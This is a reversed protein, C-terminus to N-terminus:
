ANKIAKKVDDVIFFTGSVILYAEEQRCKELASKVASTISESKECKISNKEFWKALEETEAALPHSFKPLYAYDVFESYERAMAKIDKTSLMACILIKKTNPLLEKMAAGLEKVGEPNHSVDIIIKKEKDEKYVQIRSNVEASNIGSKISSYNIDFGYECIAEIACLATLANEAQHRGVNRLKFRYAKEEKTAVFSTSDLTIDYINIKYEEADIIPSNTKKCKSKIVNKSSPSQNPAVVVPIDTKIIGSKEFTIKAVTDGLLDVHDLSIHTIVSLIPYIVNTADGKGGMGAEIIAIDCDNDSFYDFAIATMIEFFTPHQFGDEVMKESIEFSVKAYEEIEVESIMQNNIKIYERIDYIHPSTFLASKYGGALMVSDIYTCTSGKGNTGAVHVCKLENQPNGLRKLLEVVRILGPKSVNSENLAILKTFYDGM